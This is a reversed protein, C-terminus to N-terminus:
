KMPTKYKEVYLGIFTKNSLCRLVANCSNKITNKNEFDM